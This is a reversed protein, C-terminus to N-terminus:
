VLSKTKTDVFTSIFIRTWKETMCTTKTIGVDLIKNQTRHSLKLNLYIAQSPVLFSGCSSAFLLQLFTYFTHSVCSFFIFMICRGGLGLFDVYWGILSGVSQGMSQSVSV